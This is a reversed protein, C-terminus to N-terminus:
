LSRRTASFLMLRTPGTEGPRLPEPPAGSGTLISRVVGWRTEYRPGSAGYEARQEVRRIGTM